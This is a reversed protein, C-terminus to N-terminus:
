AFSTRSLVLVAHATARAAPSSAPVTMAMANARRAAAPVKLAANNPHGGGVSPDWEFGLADLKAARAVTSGPNAKGHDLRKKCTLYERQKQSTSQARPRSGRPPDEILGVCSSQIVPPAEGGLFEAGKQRDITRRARSGCICRARYVARNEATEQRNEHSGAM